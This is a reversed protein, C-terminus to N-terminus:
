VVSEGPRARAGGAGGPGTPQIERESGRRYRSGVFTEGRGIQVIGDGLDAELASESNVFRMAAPKEGGGPNTSAPSGAAPRRATFHRRKRSKSLPSSQLHGETRSWISTECRHHRQLGFISKFNAQGAKAFHRAGLWSRM